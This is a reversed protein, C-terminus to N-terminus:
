VSSEEKKEESIIFNLICCENYYEDHLCQYLLKEQLTFGVKEVEKIVEELGLSALEMLPYDDKYHKPYLSFFGESKLIRFVEKYIRERHKEYHIVDYCLVVDISNDELPIKTDGKIIEINSLGEEEALRRLRELIYADKDFAYVRGKEGIVKSAPITYHGEGCGFDLVIQGRRLGVKRLFKEGDEELWKRVESYM